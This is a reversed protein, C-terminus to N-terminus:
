FNYCGRVQSEENMSGVQKGWEEGREGAYWTSCSYFKRASMLAVSLIKVLEASQYSALRTSKDYKHHLLLGARWKERGRHGRHVRWHQKLDVSVTCRVILAPSGLVAVEVKVCSRFEGLLCAPDSECGARIPQSASALLPGSSEQVNAQKRAPNTQGSGSVILWFEIPGPSTKCLLIRSTQPLVSGFRFTAFSTYCSPQTRGSVPGSSEQVGAQKWVLHTPWVRVLGDVDTKHAIIWAKKPFVSSFRIRSIPDPM